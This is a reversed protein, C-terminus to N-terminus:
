RLNTHLCALLREVEDLGLDGVIIEGSGKKINKLGLFYATRPTENVITKVVISGPVNKPIQNTPVAAELWVERFGTEGFDVLAMPTKLTYVTGKPASDATVSGQKKLIIEGFQHLTTPRVMEQLKRQHRRSVGDVMQFFRARELHM